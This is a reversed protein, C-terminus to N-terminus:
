AVLAGRAKAKALTAQLDDNFARVASSIELIFKEDREVRYRLPKLEPWWVLLDVWERECVWLQGQLQKVHEPPLDDRLLYEMFVSPKKTKIELLGNEGVFSDPSAGAIGNRVFGVQVPQTDTIFAYDERARPEMEHGRAMDANTYGEAPKGTLLEGVLQYLYTQRTKSEGGGRGSAMVMHFCSATPIGLRAAYWEPTNQECNIVEVPM